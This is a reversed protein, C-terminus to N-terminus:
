KVVAHRNYIMMLDNITPKGSAHDRKMCTDPPAQVATDEKDITDTPITEDPMIANTITGEIILKAGTMGAELAGASDGASICLSIDPNEGTLFITKGGHACVHKVNGEVIVTKGV